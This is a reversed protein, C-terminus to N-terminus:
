REFTYTILELTLIDVVDVEIETDGIRMEYIRNGDIGCRHALVNFLARLHIDEQLEDSGISIM